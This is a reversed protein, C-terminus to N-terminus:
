KFLSYHKDGRVYELTGITSDKAILYGYEGSDFAIASYSLNNIKNDIVNRSEVFKDKFVNKMPSYDSEILTNEYINYTYMRNSSEPHLQVTKGDDSVTVTCFADGQTSNCGIKSVNLSNTITEKNLDYIFLGFSGHFIIIEDTAYYISPMDAGMDTDLTWKAPTLELTIDGKQTDEIIEAVEITETVEVSKSCGVFLLSILLVPIILLFYKKM